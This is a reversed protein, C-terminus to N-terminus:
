VDGGHEFKELLKGRSNWEHKLMLKAWNLAETEAVFPAGIPVGIVSTWRLLGIHDPKLVYITDDLALLHKPSM